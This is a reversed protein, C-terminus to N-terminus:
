LARTRWKWHFTLVIANKYLFSIRAFFPWPARAGRSRLRYKCVIRSKAKTFFMNTM